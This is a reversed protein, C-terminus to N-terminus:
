AADDPEDVTLGANYMKIERLLIEHLLNNVITRFGVACENLSQEATEASEKSIKFYLSGCYKEVVYKM